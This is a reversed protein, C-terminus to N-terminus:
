VYLAICLFYPAPLPSSSKGRVVRVLVFMFFFKVASHASNCPTKIQHVEGATRRAPLWDNAM